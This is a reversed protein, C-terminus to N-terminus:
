VPEDDAAADARRTPGASSCRASVALVLSFAVPASSLRTMLRRVHVPRELLSTRSILRDRGDPLRRRRAPGARRHRRPPLLNANPRGAGEHRGADWTPAPLFWGSFVAPM